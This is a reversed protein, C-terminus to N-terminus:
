RRTARRLTDARGAADVAADYCSLRLAGDAITPVRALPPTDNRVRRVRRGFRRCSAHTTPM